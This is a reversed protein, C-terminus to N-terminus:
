WIQVYYKEIGAIDPVIQMLDLFEPTGNLVVLDVSL